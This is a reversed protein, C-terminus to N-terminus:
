GKRNETMYQLRKTVEKSLFGVILGAGVGALLLAPIYYLLMGNYLMMVAVLLQAINHTTGGIVSVGVISFVDKRYVIYMFIFSILAGSLSYLMSIGSGFLLASLLVRAILVGLSISPGLIYMSVVTVVNSIGIKIGPIKIPIVILNELYGFLIGVTTLLGAYAIRKSRSQM